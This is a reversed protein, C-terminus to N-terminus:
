VVNVVFMAFPLYNVYTHVTIFLIVHTYEHLMHKALNMQSGARTLCLLSNWLVTGITCGVPSLWSSWNTLSYGCCCGCHSGSMSNRTSNLGATSSIILTIWLGSGSRTESTISGVMPVVFHFALFWRLHSTHGLYKSPLCALIACM